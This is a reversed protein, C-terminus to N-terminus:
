AESLVKKLKEVVYEQQVDTLTVGSPLYFGRRALREAHQYKEKQFLNMKQFAPQEHMCWFFGRTGIGEKALREMVMIADMKIDDNLVIGYVWYINEAYSTRCVPLRIGEIDDLLQNYLKGIARKKEITEPLKELQACGVAAQLNTMRFNYGLEEHVYRKHPSFFLNRALKSREALCENDTVVMGGEGCTIHKNPYFSFISIDGFSGCSKGKYTQGHMEAADEIIFLDYKKALTLVPDMDVPLGYIHVVMIARTKETIKSEIDETKMNWTFPDADVLVPKAGVRVVAAACSMITFTPMIVEDDKGLQLAIVATDLAVSGNAVAVGYTRNALSAIGEEFRKVFPGEHSIWGSDICENLYKKENGNLDPENVFVKQM